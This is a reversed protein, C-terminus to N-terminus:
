SIRLKPLEELLEKHYNFFSKPLRVQLDSREQLANLMYSARERNDALSKKVSAFLNITANEKDVPRRGTFSM